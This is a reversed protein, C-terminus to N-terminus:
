YELIRAEFFSSILRNRDQFQRCSATLYECDMLKLFCQLLNLFLNKQLFVSLYIIGFEINKLTLLEKLKQECM